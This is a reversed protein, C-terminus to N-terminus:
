WTFLTRHANAWLRCLGSPSARGRYFEGRLSGPGSGEADGQQEMRAPVKGAPPQASGNERTPTAM